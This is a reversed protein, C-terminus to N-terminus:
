TFYNNYLKIYYTNISTKYLEMTHSIITNIQIKADVCVLSFFFINLGLTYNSDVAKDISYSQHSNADIRYISTNTTQYHYFSDFKNWISPIIIYRISLVSLQSM